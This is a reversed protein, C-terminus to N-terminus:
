TDITYTDTIQNKFLGQTEVDINLEGSRVGGGEECYISYGNLVSVDEVFLTSVINILGVGASNASTVKAAVGPLPSDLTQPFTHTSQFAYLAFQTSGNKWIFTFTSESGTCTINVPRPCFTGMSFPDTTLTIITAGENCIFILLSLLRTSM